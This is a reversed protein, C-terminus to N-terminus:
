AGRFLCCVFWGLITGVVFGWGRLCYLGVLLDIWSVVGLGCVAAVGIFLGVVCVFWDWVLNYCM